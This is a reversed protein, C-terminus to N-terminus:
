SNLRHHTLMKKEEARLEAETLRTQGRYALKAKTVFSLHSSLLLFTESRRLHSKKYHSNKTTTM